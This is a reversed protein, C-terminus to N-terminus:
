WGQLRLFREFLRVFLNTRKSQTRQLMSHAFRDFWSRPDPIPHTKIQLKEALAQWDNDWIALRRFEHPEGKALIEVMERDWWTIDEKKLARFDIGAREYDELWKPDLPRIEDTKWSGQMHNYQRYIDLPGKRKNQTLEWLQYWRQKSRMREWIVYQFHLVVIEDLDMIPAGSPQPVRPSHIRQGNHACGDDIFGFPIHGPPVWVEKCGPLVNVWKFRLITGPPANQIREWDKTERCNGSLAEDADLGILVRAGPVSRARDLLLQQRYQEDYVPSDNLVLEVDPADRIHERTGDTSCQDVVIIRDAWLRTSKLFHDIIWSENKTPTLCIFHPATETKQIQVASPM